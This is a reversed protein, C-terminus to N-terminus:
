VLYERYGYKLLQCYQLISIGIIIIIIIVIIISSLSVFCVNGYSCLKNVVSVLNRVNFGHM